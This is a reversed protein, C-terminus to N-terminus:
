IELGHRKILNQHTGCFRSGSRAKLPCHYNGTSFECDPLKDRKAFHSQQNKWRNEAYRREQIIAAEEETLHFLM